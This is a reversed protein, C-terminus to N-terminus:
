KNTDTGPALLKSALNPYTRALVTRIQPNQELVRGIVGPSEKGLWSAIRTKVATTGLAKELAVATVGGLVIPSFVTGSMIAAIVTGAQTAKNVLPMINARQIIKDRNRTAIEASTLDAFKQNLDRIEPNNISLHTNLQEKLGGYIDKLVSNITKDDSPRGTFQTRNAIENKLAFAEEPTLNSLSHPETSTRIINGNDDIAHTHLLSDKINQLTTVIGQNNKGGKAAETIADDIKQLEPEANIVIGANEPSKYIV